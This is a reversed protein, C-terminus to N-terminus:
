LNNLETNQNVTLGTLFCWSHPTITSISKAGVTLGPSQLLYREIIEAAFLLRCKECQLNLIM